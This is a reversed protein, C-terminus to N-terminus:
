KLRALQIYRTEPDFRFYLREWVAWAELNKFPSEHTHCAIQVGSEEWERLHISVIERPQAQALRQQIEEFLNM